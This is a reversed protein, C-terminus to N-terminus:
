IREPPSTTAEFLDGLFVEVDQFVQDLDESWHPLVGLSMIAFHKIIMVLGALYGTLGVSVSVWIATISLPVVLPAVIHLVGRGFAWWQDFVM